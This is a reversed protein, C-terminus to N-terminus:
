TWVDNEYREKVDDLYSEIQLSNIKADRDVIPSITLFISVTRMICQRHTLCISPYMACQITAPPFIWRHSYTQELCRRREAKLEMSIIVAACGVNARLVASSLM